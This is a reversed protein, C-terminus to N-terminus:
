LASLESTVTRLGSLPLMVLRQQRGSRGILYWTERYPLLIEPTMVAEIPYGASPSSAFRLKVADKKMIAGILGAALAPTLGLTESESPLTARALRQLYAPFADVIRSATSLVDEARISSDRSARDMVVYLTHIDRMTLVSADSSGSGIRYGHSRSLPLGLDRRMVTLDAQLQRESVTFRQALASRTVGPHATVYEALAWIRKFRDPILRRSPPAMELARIM